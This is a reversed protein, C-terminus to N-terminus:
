YSFLSIPSEFRYPTGLFATVVCSVPLPFLPFFFSGFFPSFPCHERWSGSIPLFMPSLFRSEFLVPANPPYNIHGLLPDFLLRFSFFPGKELAFTQRKPAALLSAGMMLFFFIRACSYAVLRPLLPPHGQQAQSVSFYFPKRVEFL